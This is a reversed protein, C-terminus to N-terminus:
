KLELLNKVLLKPRLLNFAGTLDDSYAIVINNKEIVTLLFDQVMLGAMVTSSGRRFAHQYDGVLQDDNIERLKAIICRENLVKSISSINSVPRYNYVLNKAGKKHIPIIKPVKWAKPVVGSDMISNFLQCM